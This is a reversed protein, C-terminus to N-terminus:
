SPIGIEELQKIQEDIVDFGGQWFDPSHIDVGARDLIRVPADSGGAALIDIYRPKFSEGEQQYQKYLSLVLLKGFAYAYVYFPTHYFHPIAVWEISFDESLDLSDGFQDQLNELYVASLDDVSAGAKIQEHATREFMAFYAQRMITVYSDDVQRFILDRQVEPDPDQALLHDILLM